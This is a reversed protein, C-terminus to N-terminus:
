VMCKRYKALRTVSDNKTDLYYVKDISLKKKCQSAVDSIDISGSYSDIFAMDYYLHGFAYDNFGVDEMKSDTLRTIGNTDIDTDFEDKHKDIYNVVLETHTEGNYGSIIKGDIYVFAGERNGYDMHQRDKIKTTDGVSDGYDHLDDFDNVFEKKIKKQEKNYERFYKNKALKLAGMFYANNPYVALFKDILDECVSDSIQMNYQSEFTRILDIAISDYCSDIYDECGLNQYDIDTTDIQNIELWNYIKDESVSNINSVIDELQEDDFSNTLNNYDNIEEM